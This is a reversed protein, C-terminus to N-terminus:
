TLPHLRAPESDTTELIERARRIDDDRLGDHGRSWRRAISEVFMRNASLRKTGVFASGLEARNANVHRAKCVRYVIDQMEEKRLLRRTAKEQEFIEAAAYIMVARLDHGRTNKRGFGPM